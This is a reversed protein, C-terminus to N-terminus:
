FHINEKDVLFCKEQLLSVPTTPYDTVPISIWLPPWLITNTCNEGMSFFFIIPGFEFQYLSLERLFDRYKAYM